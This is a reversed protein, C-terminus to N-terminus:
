GQQSLQRKAADIDDCVSVISGLGTLDVIRSVIRNGGTVVVIQAVDAARHLERLGSSDIFAIESLDVIVPSGNTAARALHGQFESATAMDVEGLVSLVVFGEDSVSAKVDLSM